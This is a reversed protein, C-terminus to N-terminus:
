NGGWNISNNDPISGNKLGPHVSVENDWHQYTSFPGVTQDYADQHIFVNGGLVETALHYGEPLRQNNPHNRFDDANVLSNWFGKPELYRVSTPLQNWNDAVKEFTFPENASRAVGQVRAFEMFEDLTGAVFNHSKLRASRCM